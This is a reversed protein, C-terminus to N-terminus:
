KKECYATTIYKQKDMYWNSTLIGMDTSYIPLDYVSETKFKWTTEKTHIDYGYYYGDKKYCYDWGFGRLDSNITLIGKPLEILQQPNDIDFAYKKQDKVVGICDTELNWNRSIFFIDEFKAGPHIDSLVYKQTNLNEDIIFLEKDDNVAIKNGSAKAQYIFKEFIKTNPTEDSTDVAFIISYTKTPLNGDRAPIGWYGTEYFRTGLTRKVDTCFVWLMNKEPIVQFIEFREQILKYSKVVKVNKTDILAIDKLGFVVLVNGMTRQCIENYKFPLQLRWSEVSEQKTLKTCTVIGESNSSYGLYNSKDFAQYKENGFFDKEGDSVFKKNIEKEKVFDKGTFIWGYNTADVRVFEKEKKFEFRDIPHLEEKVKLIDPQYFEPEKDAFIQNINLEYKKDSIKIAATEKFYSKGCASVILCLCIITFLMLATNTKIKM